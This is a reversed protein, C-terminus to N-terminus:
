LNDNTYLDYVTPNKTLSRIMNKKMIGWGKNSIFGLDWDMYFNFFFILYFVRSNLFYFFLFQSKPNPFMCVKM